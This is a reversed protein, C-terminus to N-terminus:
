EPPRQARTSAGSAIASVRSQELGAPAQGTPRTARHADACDGMDQLQESAEPTPISALKRARKTSFHLSFTVGEDDKGTVTAAPAAGLRDLATVCAIFAKEAEADTLPVLKESPTM